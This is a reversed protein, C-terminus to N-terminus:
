TYLWYFQFCMNVGFLQIPFNMVTNSQAALIWITNKDYNIFFEMQSVISTFNFTM